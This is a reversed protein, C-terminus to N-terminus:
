PRARGIGVLPTVPALPVVVAGRERRVRVQENIERSCSGEIFDGRALEGGRMDIFLSDGVGQM